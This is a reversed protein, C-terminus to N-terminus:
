TTRVPRVLSTNTSSSAKGSPRPSSQTMEKAMRAHQLDTGAGVATRFEHFETDHKLTGNNEDMMKTNRTQDMSIQYPSQKQKENKLEKSNCIDKGHMEEVQKGRVRVEACHRSKLKATSRGEEVQIETGSRLRESGQKSM